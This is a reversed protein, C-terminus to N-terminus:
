GSFKLDPATSSNSITMGKTSVICPRHRELRPMLQVPRIGYQTVVLTHFMTGLRVEYATSRM